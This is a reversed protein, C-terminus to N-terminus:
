YSRFSFHFALPHCSCSLSHTSDNAQDWQKADPIYQMVIVQFRSTQAFNLFHTLLENYHALYVEGAFYLIPACGNQHCIEHAKKNYSHTFKVVVEKSEEGIKIEGVYLLEKLKHKYTLKINSNPLPPNSPGTILTPLFSRFIPFGDSPM